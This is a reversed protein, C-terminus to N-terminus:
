CPACPWLMSLPRSIERFVARPVAVTGWSQSLKRQHMAYEGIPVLWFRYRRAALEVDEAANLEGAGGRRPEGSLWYGFAFMGVFGDGFVEEWTKLGEVDAKTVWNKDRCESYDTTRRTKRGKVDVLYAPGGPPYVIYDFAKAGLPQKITHRVDDVSVYPTGRLNLCKEFAMEYHSRRASM